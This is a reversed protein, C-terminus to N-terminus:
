RCAQWSLDDQSINCLKKKKLTQPKTANHSLVHLIAGFDFRKLFVRINSLVRSGYRLSLKPTIHWLQYRFTYYNNIKEGDINRSVHMLLLPLTSCYSTDSFFIRTLFSTSATDRHSRITSRADMPVCLDALYGFVNTQDQM